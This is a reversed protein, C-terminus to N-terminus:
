RFYRVHIGSSCYITKVMASLIVNLIAEFIEFFLKINDIGYRLMTIREIGMGFAFGSFIQPDYNVAEFVKPHVMGCGAVELWGSNKCVSCGKGNCLVCEIDLEASPETFPFFSPRFRVKTKSSFIEHVFYTLIGKLHAFSVERDVLLGEIQHFMPSHSTDDDHRYVVGPVIIRLPPKFKEMVHIQVPSTHTRLVVDESIYFTDQMDRAPHHKPINLAEFNYYDTEIEPGEAVQFGYRSFIHSIEEMTQILPHRKGIDLTRSPLSTDCMKQFEKKQGEEKLSYLLSNIKESLTKKIGNAQQGIKPRDEESLGGIDKLVETLKGNRGLYRIKLEELNKENIAPSIALSSLEKFAEEQILKLKQSLADFM